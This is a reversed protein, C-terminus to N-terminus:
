PHWVTGGHSVGKVAIVCRFQLNTYGNWYDVQPQYVTLQKGDQQLVRPWGPDYPAAQATLPLSAASLALTLAVAMLTQTYITKM